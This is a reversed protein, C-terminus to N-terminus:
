RGSEALATTGVQAPDLGVRRGVSRELDARARRLRAGAEVRRARGRVLSSTSELVLVISADGAAYAIEARRVLDDLQPLMRDTWRKEEDSAAQWRIRAERVESLVKESLAKEELVARELEAEARAIVGQNQDFIPLELEVGPGVQIDDGRDENADLIGAVKLIELRALRAREEAGEVALRAARLDPRALLADVILLDEAPVAPPAASEVVTFDLEIPLALTARLRERALEQEGELRLAEERFLLADMRATSAEIEGADGALVRSEAVRAVRDAIDAAERALRLREGALLLESHAVRADRVLDLGRQVLLKGARELRKGALAMRGPRLWFVELPLTLAFEYEKPGLPFLFSFVPNTLLGAQVLDARALGLETLTAAFDPNRWLAIAAAEDETLGDKPNATPPLPSEGPPTEGVATRERIDDLASRELEELPPTKCSHLLLLAAAAGFLRAFSPHMMLVGNTVPRGDPTSVMPYLAGRM